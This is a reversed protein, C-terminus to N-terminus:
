RTKVHFVAYEGVRRAKTSCWVAVFHRGTESGHAAFADAEARREGLEPHAFTAVLRLLAADPPVDDLRFQFRM